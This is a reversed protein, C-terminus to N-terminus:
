APAPEAVHEVADRQVAGDATTLVRYDQQLSQCTHRLACAVLGSRLSVVRGHGPKRVHRLEFEILEEGLEDVAGLVDDRGLPSQAPQQPGVLADDAVERQRLQQPQDHLGGAFQRFRAVAGQADDIRGAAAQLLEDVDAEVVRGDRDDPM